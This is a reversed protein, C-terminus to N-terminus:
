HSYYKGYKESNLRELTPFAFGRCKKRNFHGTDGLVGGVVAAVGNAGRAAVRGVPDADPGVDAVAPRPVVPPSALVAHRQRAAHVSRTLLYFLMEELVEVKSSQSHGNESTSEFCKIFIFCVFTLTYHTNEKM